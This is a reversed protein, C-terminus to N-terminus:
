SFDKLSILKKAKGSDYEAESKKLDALADAEDSKRELEVFRQWKEFDILVVYPTSRKLFIIEEGNQVEDALNSYNKPLTSIPRLQSASINKMILYM